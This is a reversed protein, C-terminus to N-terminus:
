ESSLSKAVNIVEEFRNWFPTKPDPPYLDYVFGEDDVSIVRVKETQGDLWVIQVIHNVSARLLEQIEITTM